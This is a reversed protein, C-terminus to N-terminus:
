VSAITWCRLDSRSCTRGSGNPSLLTRYQKMEDELEDLLQRVRSGTRAAIRGVEDSGPLSLYVGGVERTTESLLELSAVLDAYSKSSGKASDLALAIDKILLAISIFDGVAGFTLGVEMTACSNTVASQFALHHTVRYYQFPSPPPGILAQTAGIGLPPGDRPLGMSETLWRSCLVRAFGPLHVNTYCIGV